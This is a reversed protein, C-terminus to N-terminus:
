RGLSTSRVSRALLAAVLIKTVDGALFPLVGVALLAGPEQGTLLFLQAVGGLYLVVTGLALGGTLRLWGADRGVAAGVLYAAAPMAILYGGTPGLLWPLGAGGFSFVPAGSAGLALYIAMAGAGARAGLVAGALLVFLTQLTVPVPTWPLPVAVYAGFSTALVFALMGLATRARRDAVVEHHAWTKLTNAVTSM